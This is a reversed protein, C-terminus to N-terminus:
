TNNAEELKRAIHDAIRECFKGLWHKSLYENREGQISELRAMNDYWRRKRQESFQNRKDLITEVQDVFASDSPSPIRTMAAGRDMYVPIIICDDRHLALDLERLCWYRHFYTDSLVCVFVQCGMVNDIIKKEWSDGGEITHSDLFSDIGYRSLLAKDLVDALTAAEPDQGTHSLFVMCIGDQTRKKFQPTPTEETGFGLAAELQEIRDKVGGNGSEQGVAEELKTTRQLLTGSQSQGFVSIEMQELRGTFTQVPSSIAEPVVHQERRQQEQELFSVVDVKEEARALDLPTKGHNNQVHINAGKGVLWQVMSLHGILSGYHLPTYGDEGQTHVSAGEGVLWEVVSLHNNHSALLLPTTGSKNQAHTDAGKGLLFKVVSLHGNWCAFHIPTWGNNVQAHIDAGKGNCWLCQVVSMHGGSSAWILPTQGKCNRADIDAGKEVLFEVESLHGFKSAWQLLTEGKSNRAHIDAGKEVLFEVVSLRGAATACLLPTWGNNDLADIDAGKGVLWQVVSLHGSYSAAHLPTQGEINQVHIDAGKEQLFGGM